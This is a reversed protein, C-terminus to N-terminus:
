LGNTESTKPNTKHLALQRRVSEEHLTALLSSIFDRNIGLSEAEAVRTEMLAEYRQPQLVAIGNDMKLKGIEDTLQMRQAIIELLQSDLCDIRSRLEAMRTTPEGSPKFVLSDLLYELEAPTIQQASDSLAHQPNCHSEIILGNFGLEYSERALSGVLERKGGTHSPDFILQIEPIRRHLEIPIHWQPPNRYPSPGYVSFGRHIASLHRAGSNYIRQIAGIWLDLDPNAPNKILIGFRDPMESLADAIEQVAFPNTTTRAGLWIVDIGADAAEKVHTASAVETATKLGTTTKVEQLWKLGENGCGEFGGPRTRPKWLGARFLDVKGTAKLACATELVQERSEASCPGAIIVKGNDHKPTIAPVIGPLMPHRMERSQLPTINSQPM